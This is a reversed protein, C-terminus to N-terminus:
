PVIIQGSMGSFDAFSHNTCRYRYTGAAATTFDRVYTGSFKDGSGPANDEWTVNHPGGGWLFTVPEKQTLTRTNPSFQFIGAVGVQIDDSGVGVSDSCAVLLAAASVALCWGRYSM